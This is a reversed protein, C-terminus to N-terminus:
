CDVGDYTAVQAVLRRPGAQSSLYLVWHGPGEGTNVDLFLDPKGDRDLDGIWIIEPLVAMSPMFAEQRHATVVAQSAGTNAYILRLEYDRIELGPGGGSAALRFHRGQIQFDRHEGPRLRVRAVSAAELGGLRLAPLGRLLLLPHEPRDVTVRQGNRICGSTLPEVRIKTLALQWKAGLPFLGYWTEGTVASIENPYYDAAFLMEVRHGPHQFAAGELLVITAFYAPANRLM